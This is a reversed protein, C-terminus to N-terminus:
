EKHHDSKSDETRETEQKRKALQELLLQRKLSRLEKRGSELTGQTGDPPDEPAQEPIYEDM